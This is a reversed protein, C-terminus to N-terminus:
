FKWALFHKLFNTHKLAILIYFHELLVGATITISNPASKKGNSVSVVTVTYNDGPTSVHCTEQTDNTSYQVVEEATEPCNLLYYDVEGNPPSWSVTIDSTTADVESMTVSEPVTFCSLYIM